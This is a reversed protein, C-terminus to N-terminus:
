SSFGGDWSETFIQLRFTQFCVRSRLLAPPTRDARDGLGLGERSSLCAAGWQVPSGASELQRLSREAKFPQLIKRGVLMRQAQWAKIGEFNAKTASSPILMNFFYFLSFFWASGTQAGMRNDDREARTPSLSVLGLYLNEPLPFVPSPLSSPMGQRLLFAAPSERCVVVCGM